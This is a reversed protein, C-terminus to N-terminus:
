HTKGVSVSTYGYDRLISMWTTANDPLFKTNSSRGAMWAHRGTLFATRSPVCPTAAVYMSEFSVSEGALQELVPYDACPHRGPGFSDARQQDAMIFVVNMPPNPM